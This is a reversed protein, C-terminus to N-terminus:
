YISCIIEGGLKKRRAEFGTMLGKDTSVIVLGRGNKISPIRRWNLHVRRGPRSLRTIQSIPSIPLEDGTFELIIMKNKGSGEIKFKAIFKYQLFIKIISEKIKSHPIETNSKHRMLANRIRTLMDAIPDTSYM